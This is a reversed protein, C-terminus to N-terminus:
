ASFAVSKDVHELDINTVISMKPNLSLITKDYEDAEIVIIDGNGLLSNSQFDQVIGGVIITPELSAGELIAGLMSTTTTKGHTGSIAFSNPRVKLLEGLM